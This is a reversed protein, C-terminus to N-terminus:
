ALRTVEGLWYAVNGASAATQLPVTGDLLAQRHPQTIRGSHGDFNLKKRRLDAFFTNHRDFGGSADQILLYVPMATMADIEGIVDVVTSVFEDSVDRQNLVFSLAIIMVDADETLEVVEEM